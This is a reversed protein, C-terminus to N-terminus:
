RGELRISTLVMQLYLSGKKCAPCPFHDLFSAKATSVEGTKKPLGLAYRILALMKERCANALYGYHRIRMFGKPLVHQLFRRLFEVGSLTMVKKRHDRYDLYHFSVTDETIGVIRSNSIAIRHTYRALYNVITEARQLCAKSYVVWEKQSLTTLLVDHEFAHIVRFLEGALDAERLAKLMVGRFMRSMAKVPFLYTSKAPHWQQDDGFAGGPILCHIHVHQSLNQGWTHLVCTAGLQGDLRKPDHGFTNLTEWVSRFFCRYIVEPHLRIWGNLEHPLTFVLHFYSVPLLHEHQQASWDETAQQQCCPCHRNRCAHYLTMTEGCQECALQFGGLVPTRCEMIQQCVYRQESSLPYQDNYAPLFQEIVQKMSFAM